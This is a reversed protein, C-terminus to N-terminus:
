PRILQGVRWNLEQQTYLPSDAPAPKGSLHYYLQSHAFLRLAEIRKPIMPHSEFWENFQSLGHYAHTSHSHHLYDEINIDKVDILGAVLRLLAREATALDGCCLLGARDATIESRRSWASLPVGTVLRVAEGAAGLSGLMTQTLLDALTHYVMHGSAIHGCEHGIVFTAEELTYFKCLGASICIFAYDDTGATYANFLDPMQQTVAHPTPISLVDACHRLVKFLDPFSFSDICVSSALEHGFQFSVLVDIAKNMAAKVPLANLSQIIWGDVPHSYPPMSSKLLDKKQQYKEIYEAFGTLTNDRFSIPM